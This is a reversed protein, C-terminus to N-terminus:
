RSSLPQHLAPITRLYVAKHNLRCPIANTWRGPPLRLTAVQPRRIYVCPLHRKLRPGASRVSEAISVLDLDLDSDADLIKADDVNNATAIAEGHQIDFSLYLHCNIWLLHCRLFPDLARLLAYYENAFLYQPRDICFTEFTKSTCTERM